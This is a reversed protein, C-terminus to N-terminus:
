EANIGNSRLVPSSSTEARLPAAPAPQPPWL